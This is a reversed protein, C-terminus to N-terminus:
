KTLPKVKIIRPNCWCKTGDTKHEKHKYYNKMAQKKTKDRFKKDTHYKNKKWKYTAKGKYIRKAKMKKLGDKYAKKKGDKHKKAFQPDIAIRNKIEQYRKKNLKGALNKVIYYRITTHSVNFKRGLERSSFGAKSLRKIEKIDELSLIFRKDLKRPLKPYKM